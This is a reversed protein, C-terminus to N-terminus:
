AHHLKEGGFAVLSAAILLAWMVFIAYTDEFSLTVRSSDQRCHDWDGLMNKIWKGIIGNERLWVLRPPVRVTTTPVCLSQDKTVGAASARFNPTSNQASARGEAKGYPGILTVQQM